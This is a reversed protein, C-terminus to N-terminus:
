YTGADALWLLFRMKPMMEKHDITKWTNYTTSSHQFILTIAALQTLQYDHGVKPTYEKVNVLSTLQYVAEHEEIVEDNDDDMVRFMPTLEPRGETWAKRLHRHIISDVEKIHIHRHV